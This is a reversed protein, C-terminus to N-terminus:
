RFARLAMGPLAFLFLCAITANRSFTLTM